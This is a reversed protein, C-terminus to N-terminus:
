CQLVPRSAARAPVLCAKAPMYFHDPQWTRVQTPRTHPTHIRPKRSLMGPTLFGEGQTSGVTNGVNGGTKAATRTAADPDNGAAGDVGRLFRGRYDPLNFTTVGDGGGHAITIAAFLSAYQTRLVADGNCYPWGAPPPKTTTAGGPNGDIPRAFAIVTGPPGSQNVADQLTKFQDNLKTSSLTENAAFTAVTVPTAWAKVGLGTRVLALAAIAGLLGVKVWRPVELDVDIRIKM